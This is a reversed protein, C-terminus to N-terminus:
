GVSLLIWTGQAQCEAECQSSKSGKVQMDGVQRQTDSRIQESETPDPEKPDEKAEEEEDDEDDMNVAKSFSHHKGLNCPLRQLRQTGQCPGCAM